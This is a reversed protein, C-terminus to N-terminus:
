EDQESIGLEVNESTNKLGMVCEFDAVSIGIVNDQLKFREILFNCLSRTCTLAYYM